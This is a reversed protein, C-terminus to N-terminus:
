GAAGTRARGAVTLLQRLGQVDGARVVDLPTRRELEPLEATLWALVGNATLLFRLENVLRAVLRVQRDEDGSPQSTENPSAWRQWTRDSVGFLEGKVGQPVNWARDLWGVVDKIPRGDSIPQDEALRALRFRLEEVLLRLKRRQEREDPERVAALARLAASQVAMWAASAIDSATDLDANGIGESLDTVLGIVSDPVTESRRLLRAAEELDRVVTGPEHIDFTTVAM